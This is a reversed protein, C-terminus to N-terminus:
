DRDMLKKPKKAGDTAYITDDNAAYVVGTRTNTVASIDSLVKSGRKGNSTAYLDGDMVYYLVDKGNMAWGEADDACVTTSRGGNKGNVSYITGDSVYYVFKRDSTVMFSDVDEALEVYRDSAKEGDSIKIVRLEESDYIYYLYEASEDLRVSSVKSVLKINKDANKKIMWVSSSEDDSVTYVHDYFNSVPYTTANSDYFSTANPAVILSLRGSSAKEAEKGNTSIYTKGENYFMIQTHNENFRVSSTSVDGLKTSDGKTNFSYMAEEGEDNERIAYIYKGSNAIGCLETEASSIKVPDKGTSFMLQDEEDDNEEYYAVSKGDPAIAISTSSLEDTITTPKKSSVNYLYLTMADDEETIYAIGKGSVSLEYKYVDEAVKILKTGNIVYLEDEETLVATVKGNLSSDQSDYGEAEITDKLVKNGVVIKIEGDVEQLLTQQELKVYGNGSTLIVSVISAALIVVLAVIIGIKVSKKALIPKLFDTVPKLTSVLQDKVANVDIKFPEKKEPEATAVPAAVQQAPAATEVSAGCTVCFKAGPALEAGCKTCHM